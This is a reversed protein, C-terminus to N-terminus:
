NRLCYSVYQTLLACCSQLVIEFHVSIPICLNFVPSSVAHKFEPYVAYLVSFEFILWDPFKVERLIFHYKSICFIKKKVLCVIYVNLIIM